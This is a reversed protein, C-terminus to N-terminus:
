ESSSLAGLECWVVKGPEREGVGWKDALESVLLLAMGGGISHAQTERVRPTPMEPVDARVQSTDHADHTSM